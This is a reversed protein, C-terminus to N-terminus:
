QRMVGVRFATPPIMQTIHGDPPNKQQSLPLWQSLGPESRKDVFPGAQESIRNTM